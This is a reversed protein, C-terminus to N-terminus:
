DTRPKDEKTPIFVKASVKFSVEDSGDDYKPVFFQFSAKPDPLGDSLNATGTCAVHFRAKQYCFGPLSQKGCSYSLELECKTDNRALLRVSVARGFVTTAVNLLLLHQANGRVATLVFNFGDHLEVGFSLGDAAEATCRPSTRLSRPQQAPPSAAPTTNVVAPGVSCRRTPANVATANGRTTRRGTRAAMRPTLARSASPIGGRSGPSLVAARVQDPRPVRPVQFLPPKLPHCCVGCDLVDTRDVTIGLPRRSRKSPPPSLAVDDNQSQSAEPSAQVPTLPM